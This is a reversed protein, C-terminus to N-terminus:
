GIRANSFIVWDVHFFGDNFFIYIYIYIYFFFWLYNYQGNSLKTKQEEETFLHYSGVMMPAAHNGKTFQM